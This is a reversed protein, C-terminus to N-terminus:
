ALTTLILRTPENLTRAQAASAIAFVSGSSCPARPTGRRRGPDGAGAGAHAGPGPEEAEGATVHGRRPQTAPRRAVFAFSFLQSLVTWSHQARSWSVARESKLFWEVRGTTIEGLTFHEFFPRLHLRLGDRYNQKTNESIERLELDALWLEALDGFPSSVSLVGGAGYGSRGCSNRDEKLAPQPV